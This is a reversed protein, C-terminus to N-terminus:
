WVCSKIDFCDLASLPVGPHPLPGLYLRAPLLTLVRPLEPPGSALLGLKAEAGQTRTGAGALGSCTNSNHRNPKAAPVSWRRRPLLGAGGQCAGGDACHLHAMGASRRSANLNWRWSGFCLAHLLRHVPSLGFSPVLCTILREPQRVKISELGGRAPCAHKKPPSQRDNVRMGQFCGARRLPASEGFAPRPLKPQNLGQCALCVEEPSHM